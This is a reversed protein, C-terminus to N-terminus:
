LTLDTKQFIWYHRTYDTLNFEFKLIYKSAALLSRPWHYLGRCVPILMYDNIKVSYLSWCGGFDKSPMIFKMWKRFFETNHRIILWSISLGIEVQFIQLWSVILMFYTQVIKGSTKLCFLAFIVAFLLQM